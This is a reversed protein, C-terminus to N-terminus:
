LTTEPTQRSLAHTEDFASRFLFAAFLASMFFRSPMNFFAFPIMGMLSARVWSSKSSFFAMSWSAVCLIGGVIGTEFIIQLVDNHLWVFIAGGIGTMSQIHPGYLFYSGLGHGFLYDRDLYGIAATWKEFRGSDSLFDGGKFFLGLAAVGFCFIAIRKFGDFYFGTAMVIGLTLVGITSGSLLIMIIPLLVQSLVAIFGAPKKLIPEWEVSTHEAQFAILPYLVAVFCANMSPNNFFGTMPHSFGWQALTYFVDIMALYYFTKKFSRMEYANLVAMPIVCAILAVYARVNISQMLDAIQKGFELYRSPTFNFSYIASAGMWFFALAAIKSRKWVFNSFIFHMFVLGVFWQNTWYDPVKPWVGIFFLIAADIM